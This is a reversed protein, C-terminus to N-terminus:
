VKVNNIREFEDSSFINKMDSDKEEDNMIKDQAYKRVQDDEFRTNFYEAIVFLLTEQGGYIYEFEKQLNKGVLKLVLKSFKISAEKYQKEDLKIGEISYIINNKFVLDYAKQMNYQLVVTYTEFNKIIELNIKKNSRFFFIYLFIINLIISIYM